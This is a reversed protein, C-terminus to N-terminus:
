HFLCCPRSARMADVPKEINTQAAPSPWRSLPCKRRSQCSTLVRAGQDATRPLAQCAHLSRAAARQPSLYCVRQEAGSPAAATKNPRCCAVARPGPLSALTHASAGLLAVSPAGPSGAQPPLHSGPLALHTAGRRTKKKPRIRQGKCVEQCAFAHAKAVDNKRGCAGKRWAEPARARQTFSIHDVAGRTCSELHVAQTTCVYAVVSRAAYAHM